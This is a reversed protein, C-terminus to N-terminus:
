LKWFQEPFPEKEFVFDDLLVTQRTNNIIESVLGALIENNKFCMHNRRSTTEERFEFDGFTAYLEQIMIDYLSIQFVSQFKVNEPFGPILVLKKNNINCTSRIEDVLKNHVFLDFDPQALNVHYNEAATLIEFRHGTSGKKQAITTNLTGIKLDPDPYYLRGPATIVLVIIDCEYMYKLLQTYTWFLSTGTAAYNNVVYENGILSTWVKVYPLHPDPDGSAFSDGFIGIVPRTNKKFPSVFTFDM